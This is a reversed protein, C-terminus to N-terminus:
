LLDVFKTSSILCTSNPLHWKLLISDKNVLWSDRSFVRSDKNLETWFKKIRSNDFACTTKKFLLNLTHKIIINVAVSLWLWFNSTWFKSAYNKKSSVCYLYHVYNLIYSWNWWDVFSDLQLIRKPSKKM